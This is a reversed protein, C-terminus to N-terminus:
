VDRWRAARAREGLLCWRKRGCTAVGRKGIGRAAISQRKSQEDIVMNSVMNHLKSRLPVKSRVMKRPMVEACATELVLAVHSAM